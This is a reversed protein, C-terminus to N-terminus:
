SVPEFLQWSTDQVYLSSVVQRKKKRSFAKALSALMQFTGTKWFEVTITDERDEKSNGLSGQLSATSIM